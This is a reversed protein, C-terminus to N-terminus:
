SQWFRRLGDRLPKLALLFLLPDFIMQFSLLIMQATIFAFSTRLRVFNLMTYYVVNPTWCILVSLTLLALVQLGRSRQRTGTTPHAVASPAVSPTAVSGSGVLSTLPIPVSRQPALRRLQKKRWRAVRALGIIPLASLIVLEPVDFLLIQGVAFYVPQKPINTICWYPNILRRYSVTDIILGPMIYAHVYGCERACSSPQGFPTGSRYSVPLSSGMRNIAILVHCGFVCAAVLIQGYLYVTCAFDGVLWMELFGAYLYLAMFPFGLIICVMNGILLNMIYVNFPTRLSRNRAFVLLLTGNFIFGLVFTVMAFTGRFRDPVRVRVPATENFGFLFSVNLSNNPFMKSDAFFQLFRDNWAISM